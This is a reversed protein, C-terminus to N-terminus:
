AQKKARPKRAPKVAPAAAKEAAAKEATAKEAAFAALLTDLRQGADLVGSMDNNKAANDIAVATAATAATPAQQAAITAARRGVVTGLTSDARPMAFAMGAIIASENVGRLAIHAKTTWNQGLAFHFQKLVFDHSRGSKGAGSLPVAFYALPNSITSQVTGDKHLTYSKALLGQWYARTSENCSAGTLANSLTYIANNLSQQTAM